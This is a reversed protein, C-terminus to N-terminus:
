DLRRGLRVIGLQDRGGSLLAGIAKLLLSALPYRKWANRRHDPVSALAQWLCCRRAPGDPAGNQRCKDTMRAVGLTPIQGLIYGANM